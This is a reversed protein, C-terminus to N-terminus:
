HCDPGFFTDYIVQAPSLFPVYFSLVYFETRDGQDGITRAPCGPLLDVNRLESSLVHIKSGQGGPRSVASRWEPTVPWFSTHKHTKTKGSQTVVISGFKQTFKEPAM